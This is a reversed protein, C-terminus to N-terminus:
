KKLFSIILILWTAMFCLGGLPTVFWIKKALEPIGMLHKVSLLYLSGCFLLIGASLLITSLIFINRKIKDKNLSLILLALGHIFQYKIATQLNDFDNLEIKPKLTHAGWAGLGVAMLIYLSALAATKNM